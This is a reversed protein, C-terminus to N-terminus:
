TIYLMSHTTYLTKSAADVGPLCPMRLSYVSGRSWMTKPLSTVPSAQSLQQNLHGVQQTAADTALLQLTRMYAICCMTHQGGQMAVLCTAAFLM